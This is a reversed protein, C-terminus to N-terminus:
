TAAGQPQQRQDIVIEVVAEYKNTTSLSGVRSSIHVTRLSVNKAELDVGAQAAVVAALVSLIQEEDLVARYRKEDVSSEHVKIESM